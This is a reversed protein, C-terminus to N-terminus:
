RDRRRNLIKAIRRCADFYFQAAMEVVEETRVRRSSDDAPEHPKPQERSTQEMTDKGKRFYTM